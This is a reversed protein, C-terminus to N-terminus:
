KDGDVFGVVDVPRRHAEEVVAEGVRELGVSQARDGGPQLRRRRRQSGGDAAEGDGDGHVSDDEDQRTGPGKQLETKKPPGSQLKAATSKIYTHKNDFFFSSVPFSLVCTPLLYYPRLLVESSNVPSGGLLRQKRKKSALLRQKRGLLYLSNKISPLRNVQVVWAAWICGCMM